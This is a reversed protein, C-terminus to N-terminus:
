STIDKVLESCRTMFEEAEKSNPTIFSPKIRNRSYIANIEKEERAAVRCLSGAVNSSSRMFPAATRYLIHFWPKQMRYIGSGFTGPNFAYFGFNVDPFDRKLIDGILLMYYKSESYIRFSKYTTKEPIRFDPKIHNYVPSTVAIINLKDGYADHKLIMENIVLHSLFNVQFTHEYGNVTENYEPPSLVGANNIILDFRLNSNLLERMTGTLQDMDSFDTRIFRYGPDESLKDNLKRGMAYVEAGGALLARATELGLGSTGGTLLIKRKALDMEAM